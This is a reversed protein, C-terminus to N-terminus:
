VLEVEQGTELARQVALTLALAARADEPHGRAPWLGEQVAQLFAKMEERYPNIPTTDVTQPPHGQRYLSLTKRWPTAYDDGEFSFVAAGESGIVRLYMTFPFGQPVAFSGEAVAVHGGAFEVWSTAHAWTGTPFRWGAARVRRAPGLLWLLYDLDHIHADLVALGRGPQLMWGRWSGASIGSLRAAYAGRLEGLVGQAAWEQIRCYEVMFRVVHGVMFVVGAERAAAIMEDAQDLTLAIPKECFIHKGARAAGVVHDRHAFLPSCVAVADVEPSAWLDELSAFAAISFDRAFRRVQEPDPDYVGVLRCGPLDTINRAHVRAIRGAGVLAM